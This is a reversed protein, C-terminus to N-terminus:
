ECLNMMVESSTFDVWTVHWQWTLNFAIKCVQQECSRWAQNWHLVFNPVRCFTCKCCQAFTFQILIRHYQLIRTNCTRQNKSLETLTLHYNVLLTPKNLKREVMMLTVIIELQVLNQREGFKVRCQIVIVVSAIEISATWLLQSTYSFVAGVARAVTATWLLGTVLSSHSGDALATILPSNM